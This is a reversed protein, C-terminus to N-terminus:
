QHWGSLEHLTQALHHAIVMGSPRRPEQSLDIGLASDRQVIRDRDGQLPGRKKKQKKEAAQHKSKALGAARRGVQEGHAEEAQNHQCESQPGPEIDALSVNKGQIRKSQQDGAANPLM